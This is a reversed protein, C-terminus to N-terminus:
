REPVEWLEFRGVTLLPVGVRRRRGDVGIDAASPVGRVLPVVRGGRLVGVTSDNWASVLTEAGLVALGDYRGAGEAATTLVSDGPAWALVRTGEVPAVLFRRAAADWMIGNPAALAPTELAVTVRRDRGIRWVRDPGPHSRNGASDLAVGTDTVYLAGDGGVAVDNLRRPRHQRLDVRGLPRGTRRHFARVADFDVVWLTDAVLAMGTPGHLEVDAARGDVWRRDVVRGEGDIRAISGNDDKAFGSGNVNSVLWVDQEADYLASEPNPLSDVVAVRRPAASPAAPGGAGADSRASRARRVHWVRDGADDAVLLSGDPLAALGVPRGRAVGRAEDLFGTLFPEPAGAPRGDRFPIFVVRFGAHRSRNWSGRQSVWAGSGDPAFEIDMTATHAGTAYDPAVSRAVLSEPVAAHRPDRRTGQYLYPWGYFAGERVSTVYDPVLDDGLGDRENVATWLAGTTPHWALGNPNRLGSAFVRPTAPVPASLDIALIAARRPDKRDVGEVDVNTGSGVTAYLTRGDPSLLLNRTWHNNYGDAPLDAVREGTGRVATDGVLFPFRLVGGTNAVYLMGGVEQMGFPQDLGELLTWRREARGDGDADRLLTVRNASPGRNGARRRQEYRASDEDARRPRNSEAVLVDGNPLVHLWRPHELGGAFQTVVHGPPASPAGGDPWGEVIVFKSRSATTDPAPLRPAPGYGVDYTQASGATSICALALAALSATRLPPM